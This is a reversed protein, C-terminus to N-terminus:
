ISRTSRKPLFPSFFNTYDLYGGIEASCNSCSVKRDLSNIGLANQVEASDIADVNKQSNIYKKSFFTDPTRKLINLDKDNLGEVHVIASDWSAYILNADTSTALQNKQIRLAEGLSLHQMVIKNFEGGMVTRSGPIIISDPLEVTYDSIPSDSYREDILGSEILKQWSEKVATYKEGKPRSCVPCYFYEIIVPYDEGATQKVQEYGIKQADVVKIDNYDQGQLTYSEGDETYLTNVSSKVLTIFKAAGSKDGSDFLSLVGGDIPHVETHNYWKGSRVIGAYLRFQSM